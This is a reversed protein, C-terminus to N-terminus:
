RGFSDPTIVRYRSRDRRRPDIPLAFCCVQLLMSLVHIM